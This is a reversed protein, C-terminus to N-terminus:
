FTELYRAREWETITMPDWTPYERCYENWEKKKAEIYRGAAEHGLVNLILPDHEMETIAEGLTGPIHDYKGIQEFTNETCPEGAEIGEEIGQLGATLICAKVLYPNCKPDPMRVEVRAAKRSNFYPVRVLASRNIFGWALYVPAEYGPVLRKYSNVTPAALAAMGKAHTLVGAIFQRATKSLREKDDYFINTGDKAGRLSMHMHMGSGNIGVFPKPMYTVKIGQHAVINSAVYRFTMVNDATTLADNYRLSIEYQGTAVEHHLYEGQLGLKSMAELIDRRLHAGGDIPPPSFYGVQDLPKGDRLMFFEMEASTLYDYGTEKAKAVAKKLIYRPSTELEKEARFGEVTDSPNYIDCLARGAETSNWPVNFYSEMLPKLLIDSREIPALGVSSGDVGKGIELAEKFRSFELDISKLEGLLTTFQLEVILPNKGSNSFKKM